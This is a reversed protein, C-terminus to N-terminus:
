EFLHLFTSVSYMVLITYLLISQPVQWLVSTARGKKTFIMYTKRLGRLDSVQGHITHFFFYWEFYFNQNILRIM